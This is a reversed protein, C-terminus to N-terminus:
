DQMERLLLSRLGRVAGSSILDGDAAGVDSSPSQPFNELCFRSVEQPSNGWEPIAGGTRSSFHNGFRQNLAADFLDKKRRTM